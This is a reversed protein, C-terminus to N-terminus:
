NMDHYKNFYCKRINNKNKSNQCPVTLHRFISLLISAPPMFIRDAPFVPRYEKILGCDPHETGVNSFANLKFINM